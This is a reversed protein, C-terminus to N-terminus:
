GCNTVAEGTRERSFQRGHSSGDSNKRKKQRQGCDAHDRICPRGIRPARFGQQRRHRRGAQHALFGPLRASGGQRLRRQRRLIRNIQSQAIVRLRAFDPRRSPRLGSQDTHRPSAVQRPNIAPHRHRAIEIVRGIHRLPRRSQAQGPQQEIGPLPRGADIVGPLQEIGRQRRAIRRHL